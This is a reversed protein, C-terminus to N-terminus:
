INMIMKNYAFVCCFFYPYPPRDCLLLDKCDSVSTLLETDDFDSLVMGNICSHEYDSTGLPIPLTQHKLSIQTSSTIFCLSEVYVGAKDVTLVCLNCSPTM